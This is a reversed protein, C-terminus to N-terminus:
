CIAAEGRKPGHFSPTGNAVVSNNSNNSLFATLTDKINKVDIGASTSLGKVPNDQVPSKSQTPAPAKPFKEDIMIGTDTHYGEKLGPLLEPMYVQIRDILGPIGLKGEKMVEDPVKPNPLFPVKATEDAYDRLAKGVRGIATDPNEKGREQSLLRDVGEKILKKSDTLLEPKEQIMETLVSAIDKALDESKVGTKKEADLPIASKAIRFIRDEVDPLPPKEEAM